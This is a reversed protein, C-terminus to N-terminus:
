LGNIITQSASIGGPTPTNRFLAGANAHNVDIAYSSNTNTPNKWRGGLNAITDTFDPTTPNALVNIWNDATPTPKAQFLFYTTGVPDLTVLNNVKYSAGTTSNSCKGLAEAVRAGVWGGLSHGVINIKENPNNKLVNLIDALIEDQDEYGYYKTDETKGAAKVDTNFDKMVDSMIKSPGYGLFPSKDGAGGIFVTYFGRRIWRGWRIRGRMGMAM